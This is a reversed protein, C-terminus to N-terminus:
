RRRWSRWWMSGAFAGSRRPTPRGRALSPRMAGARDGEGQDAKLLIRAHVLRRAPAIGRGLFTRLQAREEESLVVAYKTKRMAVRWGLPIHGPEVLTAVIM